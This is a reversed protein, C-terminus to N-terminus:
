KQLKNRKTFRLQLSAICDKEPIALALKICNESGTREDSWPVWVSQQDLVPLPLTPQAATPQKLVPMPFFVLLSPTPFPSAPFILTISHYEKCIGKTQKYHSTSGGLVLKAEQLFIYDSVPFRFLIGEIPTLMYSVQSYQTTNVNSLSPSM